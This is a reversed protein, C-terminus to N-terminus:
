RSFRRIFRAFRYFLGRNRDTDFRSLKERIVGMFTAYNNITFEPHRYGKTGNYFEWVHAEHNYWITYRGINM